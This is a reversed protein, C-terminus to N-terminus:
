QETVTEVMACQSINTCDLDTWNDCGFQVDWSVFCTRLANKKHEKQTIFINNGFTRQISLSDIKKCNFLNL